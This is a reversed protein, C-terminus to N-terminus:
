VILITVPQSSDLLGMSLLEGSDWILVLNSRGPYWWTQLLYHCAFKDQEVHHKKMKTKRVGGGTTGQFQPLLRVSYKTIKKVVNECTKGM